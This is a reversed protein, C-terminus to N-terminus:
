AISPMARMRAAPSVRKEIITPSMALAITIGPIQSDTRKSCAPSKATGSTQSIAQSQQHAKVAIRNFRKAQFAARKASYVWRQRHAELTEFAHALDGIIDNAAEIGCSLRLTTESIGLRARETASSGRHSSVASYSITSAVEGLSHVIAIMQLGRLFADVDARDGDLDFAVIGGTGHPYLWAAVSHGPHASLSPHYVRKVAQAGALYAAVVRANASHRAMRLALTRLGRLALWAEFHPMTAGNRVLWARIPACSVISGAVVGAGVDGHGGLYKGVSHLVLDAGHELPRVLAPTAFTADVILRAGHAHALGALAPLDAVQLLPNSLAEVYLVTSGSRVLAAAVAAPDAIDVPVAVHGQRKLDTELLATTGGYLGAACVIPEHPRLMTLLAANIAAMGSAAGVAAPAGELQALASEFHAGNPGGYRGYIAGPTTGSYVAEVDDLDAFEYSSAQYLPPPRRLMRSQQFAGPRSRDRIPPGYILIQIM